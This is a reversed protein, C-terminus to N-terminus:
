KNLNQEQEWVQECILLALIRDNTDQEISQYPSAMWYLPEVKYKIMEKFTPEFFRIFYARMLLVHFDFPNCHEIAGCCGQSYGNNILEAAIRFATKKKM